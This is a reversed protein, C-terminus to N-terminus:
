NIIVEAIRHNLEGENAFVIFDIALDPDRRAVEAIFECQHVVIQTNNALAAQRLTSAIKECLESTAM